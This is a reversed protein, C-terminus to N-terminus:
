GECLEESFDLARPLAGMVSPLVRVGLSELYERSPRMAAELKRVATLTEVSSGRSAVRSEAESDSVESLLVVRGGAIRLLESWLLGLTNVQIYVASQHHGESGWYAGEVEQLRASLLSLAYPKIKDMLSRYASPTRYYRALVEKAPLGGLGVLEMAKKGISDMDISVSGTSASCLTSKGSAIGGAIIIPLMPRQHLKEELRSRVRSTVCKAPMFMRVHEKAMTSSMVRTRKHRVTGMAPLMPSAGLDMRLCAKERYLLDQEETFSSYYDPTLVGACGLGTIAMAQLVPISCGRAVPLPVVMCHGSLGAAAIEATTLDTRERQSFLCEQTDQFVGVTVTYGSDVATRLLNLHGKHIPDFNGPLLVARRPSSAVKRLRRIEAELPLRSTADLFTLVQDRLHELAKLRATAYRFEPVNAYEGRIRGAYEGYEGFEGCTLAKMDHVGLAGSRALDGASKYATADIYKSAMDVMIEFDLLSMLHSGNKRVLFSMSASQSIPTETWLARTVRDMWLKAVELNKESSVAPDYGYDHFLAAYRIALTDLIGQGEVLGPPLEASFARDKFVGTAVKELHEWRHYWERKPDWRLYVRAAKLTDLLGPPVRTSLQSRPVGASNQLEGTASALLVLWRRVSNNKYVCKSSSMYRIRKTGESPAIATPEISEM